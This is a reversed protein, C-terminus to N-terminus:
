PSRAKRATKFITTFEVCILWDPTETGSPKVVNAAGELSLSVPMKGLTFVKGVQLGVPITARGGDQWNFVWNLDSHGAFWNGPLNRTLTPTISLASAAPRDSPGAFSIPNEAAFGVTLNKAGTYIVALAPGAQWKGQGLATATATPFVLAPGFGWRGWSQKISVLDFISIDGLGTQSGPNPTTPFPLTLKMLQEYPFIRTPFLPMVPQIQFLNNPSDSGPVHPAMTDSYQILTLPATPDNAQNALARTAVAGGGALRGTKLLPTAANTEISSQASVRLLSMLLFICALLKTQARKM